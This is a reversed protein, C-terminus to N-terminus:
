WVRGARATRAGRGYPRHPEVGSRPPPDVAGAADPGSLDRDQAARHSSAAGSSHGPAPLWAGLRRLVQPSAGHDRRQRFRRRDRRRRKRAPLVPSLLGPQLRLRAADGPRRSRLRHDHPWVSPAPVRDRAGERGARAAARAREAAERRSHRGGRDQLRSGLVPPEPFPGVRHRHDERSLGHEGGPLLADPRREHHRQSVRGDEDNRRRLGSIEEHRPVDHARLLARLREEGGRGRRPKRHARDVPLRDAGALRGQDPLRDLRQRAHRGRLPVPLRRRAEPRAGSGSRPPHGRRPGRRGGSLYAHTSGRSAHRRYDVALVQSVQSTLRRGVGPTSKDRGRPPDGPSPM